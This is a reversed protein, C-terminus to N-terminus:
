GTVGPPAADKPDSQAPDPAPFKQTRSRSITQLAVRVLTELTAERGVHTLARGVAASADSSRFGLGVLALRAAAAHNGDDGDGDAGGPPLQTGYRRGDAHAVQLSGPAGAITICGDHHLSHHLECLTILNLAVDEGGLARPKIHHVDVFQSSTCGPVVCRRHDRALVLRRVRSPITRTPEPPIAAGDDVRGLVVADCYAREIASPPLEISRGPTDQWGRQCYECVVIAIQHPPRNSHVAPEDPGDGKAPATETAPGGLVARCAVAMFEADSMRQGVERELHRRAELFLAYAAPPLEMRVIRPDLDPDPRQDPRDGRKRGRVAQEVERVTLGDVHALWVQEIEPTAVRVLERVKSFSVQGAELAAATEPLEALAEAVRMRDRGTSPAYGLVRELYEGFSGFGLHRHIAAKRAAVLLRAEEADLVARRAALRRMRRDIERWDRGVHTASEAAGGAGAENELVKGSDEFM